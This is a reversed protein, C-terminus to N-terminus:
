LRRVHLDIALARKEKNILEHGATESMAFRPRPLPKAEFQRHVDCAFQDQALSEILGARLQLRERTKGARTCGRTKRVRDQDRWRYGARRICGPSRLDGRQM